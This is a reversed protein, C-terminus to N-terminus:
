RAEEFFIRRAGDFRLALRGGAPGHRNKLLWAWASAWGDPTPQRERALAVVADAIQEVASSHQLDNLRPPHTADYDGRALQHLVLGVRFAGRPHCAASRRHRPRLARSRSHADRDHLRRRRLGATRRRAPEALRAHVLRPLPWAPFREADETARAEEREYALTLLDTADHARITARASAMTTRMAINLAEGIDGTAAEKAMAEAAALVRRRAAADAVIRAHTELAVIGAPADSAAEVLAPLDISGNTRQVFEFVAIEDVNQGNSWLALIASYAERWRDAFFDVARVIQAAQVIREPERLCIGVIVRESEDARPVVNVDGM